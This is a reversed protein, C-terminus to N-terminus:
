RLTTVVKFALLILGILVVNLVIWFGFPLQKLASALTAEERTEKEVRITITESAVPGSGANVELIASYDAISADSSIMLDMYFTTKQGPNLIASKESGRAFDNVNRFYATFSAKKNMNNTIEVPIVVTKGPPISYESKQLAIIADSKVDRLFFAKEECSVVSLKLDSTVSGSDGNAILNFLYDKKKSTKPIEIEFQRTATNREESNFSELRFPPLSTKIKLENNQITLTITNDKEGLNMLRINAVATEGCSIASPFFQSSAKDIVLKKKPIEIDIALKKQVCALRENDDDFAKVFLTFDDDVDGITESNIPISMELRFDEDEGDNLNKSDSSAEAIKRGAEAFLFAEVQVRRDNRGTNKVNVKIDLMEGPEVEEGDDPNDITVELEDPVEGFDCVDPTVTIDLTFTDSIASNRDRVTVIGGYSEFDIEQDTRVTITINAEEGAPIIGPDSFTVAVRDGDNDILDLATTIFDLIIPAAGTNRVHITSTRTQGQSISINVNSEVVNFAPQDNPTYQADVALALLIISVVLVLYKNFKM